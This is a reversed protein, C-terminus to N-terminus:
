DGASISGVPVAPDVEQGAEVHVVSLDQRQGRGEDDTVATACGFEVGEAEPDAGDWSVDLDVAEHDPPCTQSEVPDPTVCEGRPFPERDLDAVAGCRPRARFRM